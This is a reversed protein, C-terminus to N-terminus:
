WLILCLFASTFFGMTLVLRQEGKYKAELEERKRNLEDCKLILRQKVAEPEMPMQVFCNGWLGKIEEPIKEACLLKESEEQWLTGFDDVHKESIKVQMATYFGQLMDSEKIMKKIVEEVPMRWQHMYYTVQRLSHEMNKLLVLQRRREAIVSYSLGVGASLLWIVLMWKM